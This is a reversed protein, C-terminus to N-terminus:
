EAFPDLSSDYTEFPHTADPKKPMPDDSAFPDMASDYGSVDEEEGFPNSSAAATPPLPSPQKVAQSPYNSLTSPPKPSGFPSRKPSREDRLRLQQQALQRQRIREQEVLRLRMENEQMELRMQSRQGEEQRIRAEAGPGYSLQTKKTVATEPGRIQETQKIMQRMGTDTPTPTPQFPIM